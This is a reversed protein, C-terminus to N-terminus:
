VAACQQENLEHAYDIQLHIPARFPQLVYERSMRGGYGAAQVIDFWSDLSPHVTLMWLHRPLRNFLLIRRLPTNGLDDVRQFTPHATRQVGRSTALVPVNRVTES